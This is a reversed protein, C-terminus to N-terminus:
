ESPHQARDFSGRRYLLVHSQDIGVVAWDRSVMAAQLLPWQSEPSLLLTDIEWKEMEREWQQARGVEFYRDWTRQPVFEMRQDVYAVQAPADADTLWFELMGGLVQDHFLRGRDDRRVKSVLQVANEHNLVWAGEGTRRALGSDLLQGAVARGIGPQVAVILAIGIGVLVAHMAAALGSPEEDSADPLVASLHPALVVPLAAAWWFMSRIASASLYLMGAYVFVEYLRVSSRRIALLALSGVVAAAFLVGTGKSVDPPMWESVSTAVNSSIALQFVYEYAEWGYPTLAGASLVAIGSVTFDRLASRNLRGEDLYHQVVLGAGVGFVIAPALVFSGHVNAWFLTAIPPVILWRRGLRGDAVGFTSWLVAVFPLFAFMRTRVTLTPYALAVALLGLAGTVRADGSRRWATVVVLAFSALLLLNRLLVTGGHGALDYMRWMTLQGLWPQDLFPSDAPMTYLFINSDPVTGTADILRGMALHWWYDHPPIPELTAAVIAGVVPIILWVASIPLPWSFPKRV